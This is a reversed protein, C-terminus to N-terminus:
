RYYFITVLDGAACPTLFTIKLSGPIPTTTYDVGARQLLIGGSGGAANRYVEAYNTRALVQTQFVTQQDVAVFDLRERAVPYMISVTPPTMTGGSPEPATWTGDLAQGSQLIFTGLIPGTHSPTTWGIMTKRTLGTMPVALTPASSSYKGILVPTGNPNQADLLVYAAGDPMGAVSLDIPMFPLSDPNYVTYHVIVPIKSSPWALSVAKPKAFFTSNTDGGAIAHQWAAPDTYGTIGDSIVIGNSDVHRSGAKLIGTGYTNNDILWNAFSQPPVQTHLVYLVEHDEGAKTFVQNHEITALDWNGVEWIPGACLNRQVSVDGNEGDWPWGIQVYGAPYRDQTFMVNDEVVIGAPSNQGVMFQIVSVVLPSGGDMLTNKIFTIDRTNARTGFCQVLADFSGYFYNAEYLKRTGDGANEIYSCHGHGRDPANWGMDCCICGYVEFNQAIQAALFNGIDHIYCHIFKNNVGEVLVSGPDGVNGTQSSSRQINSSFIEIAWFQVDHVNNGAGNSPRAPNDLILHADFSQIDLAAHEGPFPRVIIPATPSGLLNPVWAWAFPQVYTGGRLYLTDGPLITRSKLNFATVLDWPNALSGDGTAQGNVAAYWNM